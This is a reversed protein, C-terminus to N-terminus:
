KYKFEVRRNQSNAEEDNLTKPEVAPNEEGFSITEIQIDQVGYIRIATEVSKARREGLSLNYTRTGSEDTNGELVLVAQPHDLLYQAHHKITYSYKDAIADSDFAFLIVPYITTDAFAALDEANPPTTVLGEDLALPVENGPIVNGAIPNGNEDLGFVEVGGEAPGYTQGPPTDSPTTATTTGEAIEGGLAEDPNLASPQEEEPVVREEGGCASLSLVLAMLALRFASLKLFSLPHKM